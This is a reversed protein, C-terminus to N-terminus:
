NAHSQNRVFEEVKQMREENQMRENEMERVRQELDERAKRDNEMKNEM